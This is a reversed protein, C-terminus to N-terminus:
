ATVFGTRRRTRRKQRKSKGEKQGHASEEVVASQAIATPEANPHGGPSGELEIAKAELRAKHKELSPNVILLAAYAYVRCDLAENRPKTKIWERKPFGKVYRTVCKEATLQRFYEEQYHLPFHCRGPGSGELPLRKYLLSKAQDVGISFLEVPRGNRRGTKRKTPASVIPRGEGGQGKIAFRRASKRKKCYNYVSQTNSGGSDIATAYIYLEVGSEHTWRRDLYDDLENWVDPMDPDGYLINYDVSWSEEGEGWAVVECELRDPQVDVGAALIVGGRPVLPAGDPGAPYEERREMLGTDDVTEGDDEWTEALSVNVFTQLTGAHKKDLFSQVIDSFKRWPSYLENLHFSAHGRFPREGRWEGARLMAPKHKDEIIGQCRECVYHATEPLHEGSESKEWIVNSWKLTQYEGCHPCPVYFRRMDGALFAKEIRSFGKLTPTSTEIRKRQDGFTAARQWLLEVPDGEETMTYGDIEDCIIVPASRGRMTNASGSWSFMLFGGPYSKLYANNVGERSRPKAVLARVEPTDVLLPSLKTETWTKLDSLTPQMMMVSKPDREIYFGIANNICETKGTQASWMLTVRYTHKDGMVDMPEQQYPANATRWPGPMANADSVIRFSDAWESVSCRRPPKFHRTAKRFAQKLGRRNTIRLSPAQIM